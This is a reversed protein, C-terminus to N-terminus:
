TRLTGAIDLVSSGASRDIAAELITMARPLAVKPQHLLRQALYLGALFDGTGHPVGPKLPSAWESVDDGTIAL